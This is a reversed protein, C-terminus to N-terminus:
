TTTSAFFVMNAWIGRRGCVISGHLAVLEPRGASVTGCRRSVM